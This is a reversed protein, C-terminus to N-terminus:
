GEGSGGHGTRFGEGRGGVRDHFGGKSAGLTAVDAAVVGRQGGGGGRGFGGSAM